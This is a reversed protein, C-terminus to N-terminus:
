KIDPSGSIPKLFIIPVSVVFDKVEGTYKLVLKTVNKLLLLLLQVCVNVTEVKTVDLCM